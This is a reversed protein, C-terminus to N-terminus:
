LFKQLLGECSTRPSGAEKLSTQVNFSRSLFMKLAEVRHSIRWVRADQFCGPVRVAISSIFDQM